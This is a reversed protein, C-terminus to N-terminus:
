LNYRAKDRRWNQMLEADTLKRNYIRIASCYGTFDYQGTNDYWFLCDPVALRWTTSYQVIESAVGDIMGSNNYYHTGDQKEISIRNRSTMVDFSVYKKKSTNTTICPAFPNPTGLGFIFEYEKSFSPNFVIEISTRTGKLIAIEESTFPNSTRLADHSVDTAFYLADNTFTAQPVLSYDRHNGSLDEWYLANADHGNRTNCKADLWLLLGDTVYGTPIPSVPGTEVSAMLARRRSMLDM